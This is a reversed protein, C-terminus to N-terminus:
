YRLLERQKDPRVNSSFLVGFKQFKVSQGSNQEYKNLITKVSKAEEKNAKFFLFNDDAFLLHTIIPATPSVQCGHITGNGAAKHLM